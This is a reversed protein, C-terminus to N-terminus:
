PAFYGSVDLLLHSRSDVFGSISGLNGVPVIAANSTIAGDLANLTSVVPRNQGSPWLTLYGFPGPPVVTANLSYGQAATPLGCASATM